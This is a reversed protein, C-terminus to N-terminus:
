GREKAINEIDLMNCLQKERSLFNLIDDHVDALKNLRENDRRLRIVEEELKNLSSHLHKMNKYLYDLLLLSSDADIRLTKQPMETNIINLTGNEVQAILHGPYMVSHENLIDHIYASLVIM